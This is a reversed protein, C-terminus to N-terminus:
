KRWEPDVMTPDYELSLKHQILAKIREQTSPPFEKWKYQLFQAEPDIVSAEVPETLEYQVILHNAILRALNPLSVDIGAIPNSPDDRMQQIASKHKPKDAMAELIGMVADQKEKPLEDFVTALYDARVSHSVPMPPIYGALRFLRLADVNLAKAVLSLTRADPDKTKEDTGVKLLNRVASESVGAATALSRNTYQHNLMLEAIFQGLTTAKSTMHLLERKHYRM